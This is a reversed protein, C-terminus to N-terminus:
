KSSGQGLGSTYLNLIFFLAIHRPTLFGSLTSSIEDYFLGFHYFGSYLRFPSLDGKPFFEEIYSFKEPLPIKKKRGHVHCDLIEVEHGKELLVAALSALGIPQTRVPTQYVDRLPPQILLIKMNDTFIQVEDSLRAM